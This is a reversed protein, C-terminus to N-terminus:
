AGVHTTDGETKPHALTCYLMLEVLLVWLFQNAYAFGCPILVLLICIWATEKQKKLRRILLCLFVAHLLLGIIGTSLLINTFDSEVTWIKDPFQGNFFTFRYGSTGIGSGLIVEALPINALILPLLTYYSLHVASSENGVSPNGAQQFRLLLYEVLEWVKPVVLPSVLCFVGVASLIWAATKRPISCQRDKLTRQIFLLCDLGICLAVAILGTANKSGLAVFISLAKKLLNPRYFYEFVLIPILNAAHWHLGTCVLTGDRFYGTQESGSFLTRNLDLSAVKFLALQLICWLIQAHCSWRFGDLFADGGKRDDRCAYLCTLLVAFRQIGGSVSAKVYGDPLDAFFSVGTTVITFLLLLLLLWDKRFHLGRTILLYGLTLFTLLTSASFGAVAIIQWTSVLGLLFLLTEKPSRVRIGWQSFERM